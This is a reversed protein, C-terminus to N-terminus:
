KEKAAEVRKAALAKLKDWRERIAKLKPQRVGPSEKTFLSDDESITKWLNLEEVSLRNVYLRAKKVFRDAEDVDWLEEGWLPRDKPGTPTEHGYNEEAGKVFAHDQLAHRVAREVFSSLTRDQYLAAQEALYKVKPDLRVHVTDSRSTRAGTGVRENAM